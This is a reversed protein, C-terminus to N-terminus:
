KESELTEGLKLSRKYLIPYGVGTLIFLITLSASLPGNILIFISYYMLYLMMVLYCGYAVLFVM